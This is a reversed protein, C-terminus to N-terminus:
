GVLYHSLRSGDGAANPHGKALEVGGLSQLILADIHVGNCDALIGRGLRQEVVKGLLLPTLDINEHVPASLECPM